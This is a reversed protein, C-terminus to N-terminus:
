IFCSYVGKGIDLRPRGCLLADIAIVAIKLEGVSGELHGHMRSSM